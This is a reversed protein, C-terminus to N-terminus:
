RKTGRESRRKLWLQMQQIEVQQEAIIGQALRRIEADKGYLLILRAMEVAGQHHPIMMAVFDHDPDGTMPAKQMASMMKEMAATMKAHFESKGKGHSHQYAFAFGLVIGVMLGLLALLHGRM